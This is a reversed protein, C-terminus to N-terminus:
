HLRPISFLIIAGLVDITQSQLIVTFCSSNFLKDRKQLTLMLMQYPAHLKLITIYKPHM